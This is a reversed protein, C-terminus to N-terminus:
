AQESTPKKGQRATGCLLVVNLLTIRTDAIKAEIYSSVEGVM